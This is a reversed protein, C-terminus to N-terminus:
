VRPVKNYKFFGTNELTKKEIFPILRPDFDSINFELTNYFVQLAKPSFKCAYESEELEEKSITLYDVLKFNLFLRPIKEKIKTKLSSSLYDLSNLNRFIDELSDFDNILQVLSTERIGQVGIPINDGKDGRFSKYMCLKITSPEFSYKEIFKEKNYIVYEGKEYKAVHITDGISRFWDLDNSVLLTPEDQYKKSLPGVLDDAEMGEKKVVIYNDKYHLLISHFLDLSKYFVEEKKERNAKYDPDIEKRKNIGSHANDFLFFVKGNESLFQKEISQIMKFSLFIGGTIFLKGEKEISLNKGISYARHYFNSVDIFINKYKL